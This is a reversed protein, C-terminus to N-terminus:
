GTSSFIPMTSVGNAAKLFTLMDHKKFRDMAMVVTDHCLIAAKLYILMYVCYFPTSHYDVPFQQEIAKDLCLTVVQYLNESAYTPATLAKEKELKELLMQKFSSHRLTMDNFDIKFGILEKEAAIGYGEAFFNTGPKWGVVRWAIDEDVFNLQGARNQRFAGIKGPESRFVSVTCVDREVMDEVSEQFAVVCVCVHCTGVGPKKRALNCRLESPSAFDYLNRRKGKGFEVRQHLAMRFEPFDHFRVEQETAKGFTHKKVRLGLLLVVEGIKDLCDIELVYGFPMIEFVVVKKGCKGVGDHAVDAAKDIRCPKRVRYGRGKLDLGVVDAHRFVKGIEFICKKDSPRLTIVYLAVSIEGARGFVICHIGANAVGLNGEPLVLHGMDHFVDDEVFQYAASIRHVNPHDGGIRCDVPNSGLYCAFDVKHDVLCGLAYVHLRREGDRVCFFARLLGAGKAIDAVREAFNDNSAISVFRWPHILVANQEYSKLSKEEVGVREFRQLGGRRRAPSAGGTM